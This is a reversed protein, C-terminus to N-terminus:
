RCTKMGNPRKSALPLFSTSALCSHKLLSICHVTAHQLSLVKNALKFLGELVRPLSFYRFFEDFVRLGQLGNAWRM